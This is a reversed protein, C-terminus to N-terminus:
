TLIGRMILHKAVDGAFMVFFAYVFVFLCLKLRINVIWSCFPVHYTRKQRRDDIPLPFKRSHRNIGGKVDDSFFLFHVCAKKLLAKHKLLRSGRARLHRPKGGGPPRASSSMPGADTSAVERAAPTQLLVRRLGARRSAAAVPVSPKHLAAGRGTAVTPRAGPGPCFASRDFGAASLALRAAPRLPVAQLSALLPLASCPASPLAVLRSTPATSYWQCSSSWFPKVPGYEWQLYSATDSTKVKCTNM